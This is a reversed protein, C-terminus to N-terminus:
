VRGFDFTDASILPTLWRIRQILLSNAPKESEYVARIFDHEFTYRRREPPIHGRIGQVVAALSIATAASATPSAFPDSFPFGLTEGIATM